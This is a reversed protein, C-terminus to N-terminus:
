HASARPIRTAGAVEWILAGSRFPRFVDVRWARLSGGDRVGYQWTYTRTVRPAVADLDAVAFRRVVESSSLRWPQHGDEVASQAARAQAWSTDPFIGTFRKSHAIDIVVRTPHTLTFVRFGARHDVGIGFSLIAEFDGSVAVERVQPLRPSIRHPGRYRGTGGQPTQDLTAGRLVVEIAARGELPVPEGRPDEHVVPVYRVIYGPGSGRLELVVRDFEDHQGARMERLLSLQSGPGSTGSGVRSKSSWSAPGASSSGAAQAVPLAGAATLAALFVLTLRRLSRM